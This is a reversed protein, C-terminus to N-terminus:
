GKKERIHDVTRAVSSQYPKGTLNLFDKEVGDLIQDYVKGAEASEGEDGYLRDYQFLVYLHGTLSDAVAQAVAFHDPQALLRQLEKEQRDAIDDLRCVAKSIDPMM